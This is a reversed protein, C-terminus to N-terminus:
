PPHYQHYQTPNTNTKNPIQTKAAGSTALEASLLKTSAAVEREYSALCQGRCRGGKVWVQVRWWGESHTYKFAIPMSQQNLATPQQKFAIPM